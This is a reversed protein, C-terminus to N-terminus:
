ARAITTPKRGTHDAITEDAGRSLLFKYSNTSPWHWHLPTRGQHDRANIDAGADLLLAGIDPRQICHLPTKGLSDRAHVDAGHDVLDKVIVSSSGVAVHLPSVYQPSVSMANVDAGYAVLSKIVQPQPLFHLLTYGKGMGELSKTDVSRLITPDADRVLELIEDLDTRAKIRTWRDDLLGCVTKLGNMTLEVNKEKLKKRAAAAKDLKVVVEDGDKFCHDGILMSMDRLVTSEHEMVVEAELDFARTIKALLDSLRETAEMEIPTASTHGGDLRVLLDVSM